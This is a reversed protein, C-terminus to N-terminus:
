ARRATRIAKETEKLLDKLETMKEKYADSEDKRAEASAKMIRMQKQQNAHETQVRQMQLKIYSPSGFYDMGQDGTLRQLIADKTMRGGPLRAQKRFHQVYRGVFDQPYLVNDHSRKRILHFMRYDDCQPSTAKLKNRIALASCLSARSRKSRNKLNCLQAYTRLKTMPLYRCPVIERKYDDCNNVGLVRYEAVYDRKPEGPVHPRLTRSWGDPFDSATPCPAYTRARRRGSKSKKSKKSKASKKRAM